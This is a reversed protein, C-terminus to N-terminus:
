PDNNDKGKDTPIRMQIYTREYGVKDMEEELLKQFTAPYMKILQARAKTYCVMYVRKKEKAEKSLTSM